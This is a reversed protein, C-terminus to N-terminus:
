SIGSFINACPISMQGPTVSWLSLMPWLTLLPWSFTVTVSGLWQSGSRLWQSGSWFRDVMHSIPFNSNTKQFNYKQQKSERSKEKMYPASVLFCHCTYENKFPSKLALYGKLPNYMQKVHGAPDDLLHFILVCLSYCLETLSVCGFSKNWHLFIM